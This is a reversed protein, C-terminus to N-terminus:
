LIVANCYERPNLEPNGLLTGPQRLSSSAQQAVQNELMEIQTSQQKTTEKMEDM